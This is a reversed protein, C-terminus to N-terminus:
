SDHKKQPNSDKHLEVIVAVVITIITFWVALVLLVGFYANPAANWMIPATFLMSLFGMILVYLDFVAILPKLQHIREEQPPSHPIYRLSDTNVLVM